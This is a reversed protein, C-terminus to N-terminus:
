IPVAISQLVKMVATGLGRDYLLDMWITQFPVVGSIQDYLVSTDAAESLSLSDARCFM